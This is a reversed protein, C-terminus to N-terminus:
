ICFEMTEPYLFLYKIVSSLKPKNSYNSINNPISLIRYNPSQGNQTQITTQNAKEGVQEVRHRQLISTRSHGNRRRQGDCLWPTQAHEQAFVPVCQIYM